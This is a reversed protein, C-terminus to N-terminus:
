LRGCFFEIAIWRQAKAQQNCIFAFHEVVTGRRTIGSKAEWLRRENDHIKIITIFSVVWVKLKEREAEQEEKTKKNNPKEGPRFPERLDNAFLSWALRNHHCCLFLCESTVKQQSVFINRCSDRQALPFIKSPMEIAKGSRRGRVSRFFASKPRGYFRLSAPLKNNM